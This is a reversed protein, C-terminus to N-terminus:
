ILCLAYCSVQGHRMLRSPVQSRCRGVSQALFSAARAANRRVAVIPASEGGSTRRAPEGDGGSRCLSWRQATTEHGNRRTTMRTQASTRALEKIAPSIEQLRPAAAPLRGFGTDCRQSM